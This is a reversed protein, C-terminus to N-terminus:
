NVLMNALWSEFHSDIVLADDDRNTSLIYLSSGFTFLFIPFIIFFPWIDTVTAKILKIYFATADFMRLWDFMKAWIICVLISCIVRRTDIDPFDLRMITCIILITNLIYSLLDM